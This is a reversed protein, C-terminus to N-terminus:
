GPGILTLSSASNSRYSVIRRGQVSPTCYAGHSPDPAGGDFGDRRVLGALRELHEDGLEPQGLEHAQGGVFIREPWRRARDFRHPALGVVDMEIGIAPAGG